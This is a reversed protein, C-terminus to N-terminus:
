AIFVKRLVFWTFTKALWYSPKFVTVLSPAFKVFSVSTTASVVDAGANFSTSAPEGKFVITAIATVKAIM